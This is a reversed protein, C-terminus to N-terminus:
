RTREYEVRLRTDEHVVLLRPREWSWREPLLYLTGSSRRLLRLGTYRYRYSAGSDERVAIGEDEQMRLDQASYLVVSTRGHLGHAFAQGDDRGTVAAYAGSVWFLCLVVTASTLVASWRRVGGTGADRRRAGLRRALLVGYTTILVGATVACPLTLAWWRAEFAPERHVAIRAVGPVVVWACRLVGTCGIAVRRHRRLVSVVRSHALSVGLVAGLIVLLPLCLARLGDVVYDRGSTGLVSEDFGLYRSRAQARSWGHLYVLGALVLVSAVLALPFGWATRVADAAPPRTQRGAAFKRAEPSITRRKTVKPAPSPPECEVLPQAPIRTPEGFWRTLMSVPELATDTLTGDLRFVEFQAKVSQAEPPRADDSEPKDLRTEDFQTAVFPTRSERPVRHTYGAGVEVGYDDYDDAAFAAFSGHVADFRPYGADPDVTSVSAPRGWAWGALPRYPETPAPTADVDRGAAHASSEPGPFDPEDDDAFETM